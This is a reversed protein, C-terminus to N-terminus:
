GEENTRRQQWQEEASSPRLYLPELTWLDDREGKLYRELGLCLLSEPRPEWLEAAVAQVGAPLRSERGRLGPGSVWLSDRVQEQWETFPCITLPTDAQWPLGVDPRAFRQVYVKDQQADGLVDLWRVAAPAQVAIAAFTDIALLACGTAYALTKASIIGVRLGTYSGPGRSVIVADLEQPEWHQASLLDHVAPVLDRAHRRAEDLRRVDLVQPGAALAVQGVRSSTELLLLRPPGTSTLASPEM